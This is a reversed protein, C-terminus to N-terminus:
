YISYFYNIDRNCDWVDFWLESPEMKYHECFEVVKKLVCSKVNSLPIEVANNGNEDDTDHEEEEGLTTV